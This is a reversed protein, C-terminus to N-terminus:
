RGLKDTAITRPTDLDFDNIERETGCDACFWQQKNDAIFLMEDLGGCRRCKQFKVMDLGKLKIESTCNIRLWEVATSAAV